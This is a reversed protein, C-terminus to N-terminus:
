IMYQQECVIYEPHELSYVTGNKWTDRRIAQQLSASASHTVHPHVTPPRVRSRLPSQHPQYVGSVNVHRVLYLLLFVVLTM